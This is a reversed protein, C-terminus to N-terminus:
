PALREVVWRGASRRYRVRDHLRDPRGQWFEVVDPVLRYGGWFEPRRVVNGAFRAEIEAVRRELEARSGIVTSQASAWAGIQAGRPRTAFYADSSAPDIVETPGEARVQQQVAVWRWALAARPNAALDDAKRSQYNTYFVFGRDDVGKLLVFRVSPVGAGDATALSMADPEPEGASQAGAYWRRFQEMPADAIQDM